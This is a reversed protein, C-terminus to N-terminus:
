SSPFFSGRGLKYEPRESFFSPWGPRQNASVNEIESRCGSFPIQRFKVLLLYMYEIDEVFNTNKPGMFSQMGAESQSLCKRSRRQLRLVSNSSVQCSVVVFRGRVLKRKRLRDIFFFKPARAEMFTVRRALTRTILGKPGRTRATDVTLDVM